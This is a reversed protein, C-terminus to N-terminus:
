GLCKHKVNSERLFPLIVNAIDQYEKVNQACIHMKWPGQIDKGRSDFQCWEGTDIYGYKRLKQAFNAETTYFKIKPLQFKDLPNPRKEYRGTFNIQAKKTKEETQAIFYPIDERKLEYDTGNEDNPNSGVIEFGCKNTYFDQAEPQGDNIFLCERKTDIVKKALMALMNQGAYKYNKDKHSELHKVIIEEHNEQTDCICITKGKQNEISYIRAHKHFPRSPHAKNWANGYINYGYEWEGNQAIAIISRIDSRDKCDYEYITATEQSKKQTDYIQCKAIPIKAQFSISNM